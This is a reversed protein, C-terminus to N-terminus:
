KLANATIYEEKSILASIKFLFLPIWFLSKMNRLKYEHAPEGVKRYFDKFFSTLEAYSSFRSLINFTYSSNECMRNIVTEIYKTTIDKNASKENFLYVEKVENCLSQMINIGAETNLFDKVDYFNNSHAYLAILQHVGNVIWKKRRIYFDIKDTTTVNNLQSLIKLIDNKYKLADSACLPQICIIWTAYTETTVIINGKEIFPTNCIRDVVSDLFFINDRLSFQENYTLKIYLIIKEKLETSSIANECAIVVLPFDISSIARAYVLDGILPICHELGGKLATTLFVIEDTLVLKNLQKTDNFSVFDSIPIVSDFGSNRIYFHKREKLVSNRRIANEDSSERNALFIQTSPSKSFESLVLGLGLSGSGFHILTSSM